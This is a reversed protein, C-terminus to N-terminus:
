RAVADASTLQIEVFGDGLLQHGQLGVHRMRLDVASCVVDIGSVRLTPISSAVVRDDIDNGSITNVNGVAHNPINSDTDIGCIDLSPADTAPWLIYHHSSSFPPPVLHKSKDNAGMQTINIEPVLKVDLRPGKVARRSDSQCALGDCLGGMKLDDFQKPVIM